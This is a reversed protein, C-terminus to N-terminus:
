PWIRSEICVQLLRHLAGWYKQVTLGQHNFDLPFFFRFLTEASNVMEAMTEYLKTIQPKDANKESSAEERAERLLLDLELRHQKPCSNYILRHGLDIEQSLYTDIETMDEELGKIEFGPLVYDVNVATVGPSVNHIGDTSNLWTFVHFERKIRDSEKTSRSQKRHDM